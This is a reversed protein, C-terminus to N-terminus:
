AESLCKGRFVESAYWDAAEEHDGCPRRVEADNLLIGNDLRMPDARPLGRVHGVSWSATGVPIRMQNFGGARAATVEGGGEAEQTERGALGLQLEQM